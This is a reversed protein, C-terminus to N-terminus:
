IKQNGNGGIICRLIPKINLDLSEFIHGLEKEQEDIATTLEHLELIYDPCNLAEELAEELAEKLSEEREQRFQNLDIVNM